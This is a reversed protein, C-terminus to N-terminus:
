NKERGKKNATTVPKEEGLGLENIASLGNDNLESNFKPKNVDITAINLATKLIDFGISKAVVDAVSLIEKNKAKLNIGKVALESVGAESKNGDQTFSTALIQINAM